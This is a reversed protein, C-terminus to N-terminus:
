YTPPVMPAAKSQLSSMDLNACAVTPGHDAGAQQHVHISFKRETDGAMDRPQGTEDMPSGQLKDLESQPIVLGATVRGDEGAILPLAGPVPQMDPTPTFAIVVPGDTGCEAQHIHWAHEGPTLGELEVNLTAGGSPDPTLEFNGDIDGTAGEPEKFNGSWSAEGLPRAAAEQTEEAAPATEEVEGRDTDCAAGWATIGLVLSLATLRNRTM